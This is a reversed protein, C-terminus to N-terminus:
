STAKLSRLVETTEPQMSCGLDALYQELARISNELEEHHGLHALARFKLCWLVEAERAVSLGHSAAWLAGRPDDHALRREAYGEATHVIARIMDQVIPEAWQYRRPPIDAFPQGTVMRLAAAMKEDGEPGPDAEGAAALEQFLDWDLTVGRLRYRKDPQATVHPLYSTGDPGSGLWRRLDNIRSNRVNTSVVGAPEICKDLAHRDSGPHFSLWAAIELARTRRNSTIDGAAGELDVKGLVRIVPGSAAKVAIDHEPVPIRAHVVARAPPAEAPACKRSSPGGSAAGEDGDGDEHEQEEAPDDDESLDALAALAGSRPTPEPSPAPAPVAASSAEGAPPETDPVDGQETVLVLDFTDAYEEDSSASIACALSTGPVIVTEVDTDIVWAKDEHVHGTGGATVVAVAAVPEESTLERASDAEDPSSCSDLDALVILPWVADDTLRAANLGEGSLVAEQEHRHAHLATTAEALGNIARVRAPDLLYLGPATEDGAVALEIQEALPSLALCLGLTRLARLGRSGTFHLAGHWELDVLVIGGDEDTGLPALAPYPPQTDRLADASSIANSDLPCWWTSDTDTSAFPAIPPAAEALHLRAGQVGLQVASVQPLPSADARARHALTRLMLDLRNIEHGADVSRLGEEASALPEEPMAIKRGRRLRRRQLLRRTALAGVLAAAVAGSASLGLVAATRGTGDEDAASTTHGSPASERPPATKATSEKAGGTARERSDDPASTPVRTDEHREPAPSAKHPKSTSPSPKRSDPTPSGDRPRAAEPVTLVQGPYIVDPDTFHGGGPQEQGKNAQFLDPWDDPDGYTGALSWLSDGSKVTLHDPLESRSTEGTRDKRATAPAGEEATAKSKTINTPVARAAGPTSSAAPTAASRADAPLQVAADKPLYSGSAAGPLDPNLAAIDRWRQGSGLYQEALSWPTETSSLVTHVPGPAQHGGSNKVATTEPGEEASVSQPASISVPHGHAPTAASATTPVILVLGGLLMGVFSQMGRLGRVRPAARRRVLATAEILTSLALAAWAAWGLLTLVTLFLTGDDQQTLVGFGQQTLESPPHGVAVLALPIGALLALLVALGLLARLVVFATRLLAPTRPPM